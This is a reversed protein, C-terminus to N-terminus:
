KAWFLHHFSNEQNKRKIQMTHSDMIQILGSHLNDDVSIDMNDHLEELEIKLSTIKNSARLRLM